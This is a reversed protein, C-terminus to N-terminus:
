DSSIFFDCSSRHMDNTTLNLIVSTPPRITINPTKTEFNTDNLELQDSNTMTDCPTTPLPTATPQLRQERIGIFSAFLLKTFADRFARSM